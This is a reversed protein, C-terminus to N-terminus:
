NKYNKSANREDGKVQMNLEKESGCHCTTAEKGKRWRFIMYKRANEGGSKVKHIFQYGVLWDTAM